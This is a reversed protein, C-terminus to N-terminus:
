EAASTPSRNRARHYIKRAAIVALQLFLEAAVLIGAVIPGFELLGAVFLAALVVIAIWYQRFLRFAPTWPRDHRNAPEEAEELKYYFLKEM